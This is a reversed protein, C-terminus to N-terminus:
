WINQFVVKAPGRWTDEGEKKYYVIDGKEYVTDAVRIKAKLARRIRECREAETYAVRTAHIAKLTDILEQSKQPEEWAPPPDELINPLKIQRGFVLQHPSFGRVSSMSNVATVAWALAVELRMNPFDRKVAHTIADTPQHAREVTGNMWPANAGTTLHIINLASAVERMEENCFEGGNDTLIKDVRGFFPLWKTTIADIVHSPEKSKLVTAVQYRTFHDIM